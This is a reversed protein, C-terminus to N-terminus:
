CTSEASPQEDTIDGAIAIVPRGAAQLTAGVDLLREEDGSVLVLRCGAEGFAFAAERGTASAAGTILVVKDRLSATM